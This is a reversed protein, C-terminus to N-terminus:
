GTEAPKWTTRCLRRLDARLSRGSIHMQIEGGYGEAKLRNRIDEVSQCQGSRALEYARELIHRNQM